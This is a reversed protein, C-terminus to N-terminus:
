TEHCILHAHHCHPLHTLFDVRLFALTMWESVEQARSHLAPHLASWVPGREGAHPECMTWLLSLVSVPLAQHGDSGRQNERDWCLAQSLAPDGWIGQIGSPHVALLQSFSGEQNLGWSLPWEWLERPFHSSRQTPPELLLNKAAMM